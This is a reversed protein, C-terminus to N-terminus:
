KNRWKQLNTDLQEKTISSNKLIATVKHENDIEIQIQDDATSGSTM